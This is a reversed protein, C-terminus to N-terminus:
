YKSYLNEANAVSIITELEDINIMKYNLMFIYTTNAIQSQIRFMMIELQHCM